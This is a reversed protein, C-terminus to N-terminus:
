RWGSAALSSPCRSTARRSCAGALNQGFLTAISGPAVMQMFQAAETIGGPNIAPAATQAPLSIGFALLVVVHFARLAKALRSRM